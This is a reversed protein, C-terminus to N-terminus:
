YEMELLEKVTAQATDQESRTLRYMPKFPPESGPILDITHSVGERMPPLGPQPAEFIDRFDRLIPNLIDGYCCPHKDCEGGPPRTNFAHELSCFPRCEEFDFQRICFGLNSETLLEGVVIGFDEALSAVMFTLSFFKDHLKVSLSLSGEILTSSGDAYTCRQQISLPAAAFGLRQATASNFFNDSAGTDFLLRLPVGGVKAQTIFQLSRSSHLATLIEPMPPDFYVHAKAKLQPPGIVSATGFHTHLEQRGRLLGRCALKSLSCHPM